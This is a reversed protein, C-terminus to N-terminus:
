TLPIDVTKHFYKRPLLSARIRLAYCMMERATNTPNSRATRSIRSAIADTPWYTMSSALFANAESSDVEHYETSGTRRACSSPTANGDLIVISTLTAGIEVVEPTVVAAVEAKAQAIAPRAVVDVRIVTSM